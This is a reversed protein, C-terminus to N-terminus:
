RWKASFRMSADMALLLAGLVGSQADLAPTVVYHEVDELIEARDVYGGLWHLLRKRIPALLQTSNMVGGGLVIRQPSVTVV